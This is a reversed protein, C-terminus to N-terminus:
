NPSYVDSTTPATLHANNPTANTNPAINEDDYHTTTNRHYECYLYEARNTIMPHILRRMRRMTTPITTPIMTMLHALHATPIALGFYLFFPLIHVRFLPFLTNGLCYLFHIYDLLFVYSFVYDLFFLCM